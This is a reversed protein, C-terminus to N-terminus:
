FSFLYIPVYFRYQFNLTDNDYIFSCTTIKVIKQPKYPLAEILEKLYVTNITTDKEKYPYGFILINKSELCSANKLYGTPSNGSNLVYDPGLIGLTKIRSFLMYNDAGRGSVTGNIRYAKRICRLVTDKFNNKGRFYGIENSIWAPATIVYLLLLLMPYSIHKHRTKEVIDISLLILHPFLLFMAKTFYEGTVGSIKSNWMIGGVLLITFITEGLRFGIRLSGLLFLIDATIIFLKLEAPTDYFQVFGVAMVVYYVLIILTRLLWKTSFDFKSQNLYIAMEVYAPILPLSYRMRNYMIFVATLYFVISMDFILIMNDKFISKSPLKFIIFYIVFWFVPTIFIFSANIFNYGTILEFFNNTRPLSFLDYHLASYGAPYHLRLFLNWLIPISLICVTFLVKRSFSSNHLLIFPISFLIAYPKVFYALLTLSLSLLFYYHNKKISYLKYSVFALTLLLVLLPELIATTFRVLFFREIFFPFM